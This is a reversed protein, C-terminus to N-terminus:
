NGPLRRGKQIAYVGACMLVLWGVVGVVAFGRVWPTGCHIAGWVCVGAGLVSLVLLAVPAVYRTGKMCQSLISWM